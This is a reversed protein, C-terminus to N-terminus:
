LKTEGHLLRHGTARLLKLACRHKRPSLVTEPAKPEFISRGHVAPRRRVVPNLVQLETVAHRFQARAATREREDFCIPVREHDARARAFVPRSHSAFLTLPKTNIKNNM